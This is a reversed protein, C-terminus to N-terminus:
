VPPTASAYPHGTPANDDQSLRGAVADGDDGHPSGSEKAYPRWPSPPDEVLGGSKPNADSETYIETLSFMHLEHRAGTSTPAATGRHSRSSPTASSGVRRCHFVFELIPRSTAFTFFVAVNCTSLFIDPVVESFSTVLSIVGVVFAVGVFISFTLTRLVLPYSVGPYEIIRRVNWRTTVLLWTTWAAFVLCIFTFAAGLGSSADQLTTHDVVCYFPSGRFVRDREGLGIVLGAIFLPLSSILPIALLQRPGDAVACCSATSSAPLPLPLPSARIASVHRDRRGQAPEPSVRDRRQGLSAARARARRGGRRPRQVNRRAREPPVAPVAPARRPRPGHTRALQGHALHRRLPLHPEAPERQRQRAPQRPHRRPPGRESRRRLHQIHELPLDAPPLRASERHVDCPQMLPSPSFLACLASEDSSYQQM